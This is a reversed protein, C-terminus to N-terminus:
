DGEIVVSWNRNKLFSVLALPGTQESFTGYDTGWVEILLVSADGPYQTVNGPSNGLFTVTESAYNIDIVDSNLQVGNLYVKTEYQTGQSLTGSLDNRLNINIEHSPDNSGLGFIYEADLPNPQFFEDGSDPIGDPDIVSGNDLFQAQNVTISQSTILGVSITPTVTIESTPQAMLEGSLNVIVGSRPAANYNAVLDILIQDISTNNLRNGSLDIIRLRTCTALGGSPYNIFKCNNMAINRINPSGFSFNPIDPGLDINNSITLYELAPLSEWGTVANLINQGIYFEKLSSLGTLSLNGSFKNDTLDVYRISQNAAFSPCPTGTINGQADVIDNGWGTSYSILTQLSPSQSPDFFDGRIRKEPCLIELTALLPLNFTAGEFSAGTYVPNTTSGNWTGINRGLVSSRIRISTINQADDFTDNWMIYTRGHLNNNASPNDPRGGEISTNRLDISTMSNNGILKPFFGDMASSYMSISSLGTCGKFVYEEFNGATKSTFFHNNANSPNGGGTSNVTGTGPRNPFRSYACSVSNLTTKDFLGNPIELSTDGINISRIQNMLLFNPQGNLSDNDYVDFTRLASNEYAGTNDTDLYAEPFLFEDSLVSFGNNQITYNQINKIEVRPTQEGGGDIQFFPNLYDPRKTDSTAYLVQNGQRQNNFNALNPLRNKMDLPQFIGKKGFLNPYTALITPAQTASADAIFNTYSNITIEPEDIYVYSYNGSIIKDYFIGKIKLGSPTGVGTEGTDVNDFPYEQKDTPHCNIYNFDSSNMNKVRMVLSVGATLFETNERYCGNTLLRTLNSPFRKVAHTGYRVLQEDESLYLPNRGIHIYTLTQAPPQYVQSPTGNPGGSNSNYYPDTESLTGYTVGKDYIYNINRWDPMEGLLNNDIEMSQLALFKAAPLYRLNIGIGSISIINGPPYYVRVDREKYSQASFRLRSLTGSATPKSVLEPESGDTAKFTYIPDPSQGDVPPVSNFGFDMAISKFATTFIFPIGRMAYMYQPSGNFNIKVIDTPVETKFRIPEPTDLVNLLCETDPLNFTASQGLMLKGRVQVSGGYSIAQTLNTEDSTASSWSSVRSTSIDGYKLNDANQNIGGDNPIYKFRVAGGSVPGFAELNGKTAYNYGSLNNVLNNYRSTDADLRDLYRTLNTDLGSVNQLDVKDISDSIGRIVEIDRIDLGLNQLAITKSEIDSFNFSVKLGFLVRNTVTTSM